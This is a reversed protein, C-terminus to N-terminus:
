LCKDLLTRGPLDRLVVESKPLLISVGIENIISINQFNSSLVHTGMSKKKVRPIGRVLYVFSDYMPLFSHHNPHLLM